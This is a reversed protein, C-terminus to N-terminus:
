GHTAKPSLTAVVASGECCGQLRKGCFSRGVVGDALAGSPPRGGHGGKAAGGEGAPASEMLEM